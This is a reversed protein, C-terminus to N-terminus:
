RLIEAKLMSVAEERDRVVADILKKELASDAIFVQGQMDEADVGMGRHEWVHRSFMAAIEEVRAKLFQRHDATLSTGPVGLGKFKGSSIVDVKIGRQEAMKSLDMFPMYVGISGVDSSKTALVKDATAGIWYAASCMDGGTFAYVPKSFREIVEAFEPTGSVMGGPSDIDLFVGKVTSNEEAERMESSLDAVDVAGAGKEFKGFGRGIPGAIPIFAIGDKIEMQELDVENGCADVGERKAHFEAADLSRHEDFLRVLAAHAEPTILLPEETLARIIEHYKM